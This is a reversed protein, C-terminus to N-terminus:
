SKENNYWEIFEICAEYVAEIKSKNFINVEIDEFTNSKSSTWIYITPQEIQFSAVVDIEEIKEVVPMLEDWKTNYQGARGYSHNCLSKWLEEKIEVIRNKINSDRKSNACKGSSWDGNKNRSTCWTQEPYDKTPPTVEIYWGMFEAILKNGLFVNVKEM